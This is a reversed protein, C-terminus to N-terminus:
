APPIGRIVALACDANHRTALWNRRSTRTNRGGLSAQEFAHRRFVRGPERGGRERIWSHLYEGQVCLPGNVWAVEAGLVLARDAEIDGTDIVCGPYKM